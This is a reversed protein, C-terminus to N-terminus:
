RMKHCKTWFTSGRAHPTFWVLFLTHSGISPRDGRMRPLCFTFPQFAQKFLDIGACAPYVLILSSGCALTVTSGRAHPTFRHVPCPPGTEAPRDGRMRPLCDVTGDKVVAGLDIGACAPYVTRLRAIVAPSPTSGRAHPTFPLMYASETRSPPRDGRM